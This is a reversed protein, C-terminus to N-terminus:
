MITKTSSNHVSELVLNAEQFKLLSHNEMLKLHLQTSKLNFTWVQYM